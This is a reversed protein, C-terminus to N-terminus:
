QGDLGKESTWQEFRSVVSLSVSPKCRAVASVFHWKEVLPLHLQEPPVDNFRM